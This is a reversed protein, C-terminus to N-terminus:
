FDERFIEFKPHDPSTEGPWIMMRFALVFSAVTAIVGGVVIAIGVPDAFNMAHEHMNMGDM